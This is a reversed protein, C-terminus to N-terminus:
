LLKYFGVVFLCLFIMLSIWVLGAGVISFKWEVVRGMWWTENKELKVMNIIPLISLLLLKDVVIMGMIM